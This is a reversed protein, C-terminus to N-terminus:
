LLYKEIVSAVGDEDVSPAIYEAITKLESVANGMAVKVGCALLLPFDNYGDGVGISEEKKIGLIKMIEFIGHFKTAYVDTVDLCEYGKEWSTMKQIAIGQIQQLEHEVEDVMSPSIVPMYIGLATQIKMGKIYVTDKKGDFIGADLSFREAVHLINPILAPNITHKKIVKRQKPDYLVAGSSLVCLSQIHLTELLHEVRFLPRGTALCVHVSPPISSIAKIVRASPIGKTSNPVTTGDLDLFLAKYTV